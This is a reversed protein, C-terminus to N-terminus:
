KKVVWDIDRITDGFYESLFLIKSWCLIQIISLPTEFYRFEMVRVHIHFVVQTVSLSYLSLSLNSAVNRTFRLESFYSKDGKSIWRRQCCHILRRLSINFKYSPYGRLVETLYFLNRCQRKFFGMKAWAYSLFYESTVM